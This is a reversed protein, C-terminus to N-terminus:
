IMEMAHPLGERRCAANATRPFIKKSMRSGVCAIVSNKRARVKPSFNTFKRSNGRYILKEGYVNPAFKMVDIQAVATIVRARFDIKSCRLGPPATICDHSCSINNKGPIVGM